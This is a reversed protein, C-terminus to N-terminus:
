LYIITEIVKDISALVMLNELNYSKAKEYTTNGICIIKTASLNKNELLIIFNEVTSPSTFIIYDFNSENLLIQKYRTDLTTNYIVLDTVRCHGKLKDLIKKDSLNSKPLLINDNCNIVKLLEETLDLLTYNKPMLEVIFGKDEVAKKTIEGVVAIKANIRRIDIKLIKMREFFHYVGNVSSFVIWQYKEINLLENDVQSYDEINTIKITPCQVIDAGYSNLIDVLTNSQEKARTILIKKGFLPKYKQQNLKVGLEVVKGVIIISPSKINNTQALDYITELSGYVQRQKNTTGNEIIVVPTDISKGGEILQEIIQKLNSMGMLFILTGDLKSLQTYDINKNEDKQHGTIVHFSSSYNRHTVPIGLYAPVSIASTIGPVVEYYINYKILEEIEEGGRGFVFPDGGKLRAVIKGELAKEVLIKNIDDQPVTHANPKKGVYIFEAYDNALMLLSSNILRDYVIIDAQEIYKKAKLTLLEVDGPGAGIIYVKGKM